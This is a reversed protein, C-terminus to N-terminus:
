RGLRRCLRPCSRCSWVSMSVDSHRDGDSTPTPTAALLPAGTLRDLRTLSPLSRQFAAFEEPTTRDENQQGIRLTKLHSLGQNAFVELVLTRFNNEWLTLSRLHSLGNFTGVPLDEADLDNLYLRLTRLDRLNRFVGPPLSSLRNQQLDLM